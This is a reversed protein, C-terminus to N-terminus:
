FRPKWDVWNLERGVELLTNCCPCHVRSIEHEAIDNGAGFALYSFTETMETSKIIESYEYEFICGCNDCEVRNQPPIFGEKIIKM